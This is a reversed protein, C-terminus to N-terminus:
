TARGAKRGRRKHRNAQKKIVGNAARAAAGPSAGCDLMSSEVHRWQRRKRPTNAKLSVPM